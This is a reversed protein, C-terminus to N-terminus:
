RERGAIIIQVATPVPRIRNTRSSASQVVPLGNVLLGVVAVVVAQNSATPVPEVSRHLSEGAMLVAFRGTAHIRHPNVSRTLDAM